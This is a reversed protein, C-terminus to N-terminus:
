SRSGHSSVASPRKVPCAPRNALPVQMGVASKLGVSHGFALASGFLRAAADIIEAQAEASEPM